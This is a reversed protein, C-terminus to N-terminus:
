VSSAIEAWIEGWHIELHRIKMGAADIEDSFSNLTYETQHTVDLRWEVGLEKKLPVRWDREFLPVRILVLSAGTLSALNRILSSRDPLHELVNSLIIVDFPEESIDKLVNGVRFELNPFPYRGRAELVSDPNLDMGVVSAGKKAVDAALAGM